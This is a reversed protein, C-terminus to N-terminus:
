ECLHLCYSLPVSCDCTQFERTILTECEPLTKLGAKLHSMEANGLNSITEKKLVLEKKLQKTKM